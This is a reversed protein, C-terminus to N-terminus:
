SKGYIKFKCLYFGVTKPVILTECEPCFLDNREEILDFKKKKIRVVVEKQYALCKKFKCIGFINIGKTIKRYSPARKSLTLEKTKNKSVDSFLMPLGGYGKVGGTEIVLINANDDLGAESVTLSENLQKANFIYKINPNDLGSKERFKKIVESVKQGALCQIMFLCSVRYRFIVNIGPVNEEISEKKQNMNSLMINQINNIYLGMMNM